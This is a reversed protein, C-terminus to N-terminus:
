GPEKKLVRKAIRMAGNAAPIGAYVAVQQLVEALDRETAGTNRMALVHGAFEEHHGLAALLSVTLLSRTRRDLGPRAWVGGWATRTLFEQFDRDLDTVSGLANAVYEEGLVEKRVALGVEYLNDSKAKLFNVLASTVVDAKELTPIHAAGEIVILEGDLADRVIVLTPIPHALHKGRLDATALAEAAAAYGETPTRLLMARLGKAEPSGIHGPTVWRNLVGDVIAAIGQARVTAARDNWSEPPPLALATDCLFLSRVREPAAHAVAQAILGGISVGGLHVSRIELADLLALVDDALLDVTYPGRTVESLGHGRMDPRIVRFSRSLAAAQPDWVRLDTGLSHLLLLPPAGPPGEITVHTTLSKTALFM